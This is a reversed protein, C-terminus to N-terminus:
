ATILGVGLANSEFGWDSYYFYSNDTEKAAVTGWIVVGTGLGNSSEIPGGSDGEVALVHGNGNVMDLHCVYPGQSYQKCVDTVAVTGNCDEGTMSGNFCVHAGAFSARSGTVNVLGREGSTSPCGHKSTQPGYWMNPYTATSTATGDLFEADVLNNGYSRITVKGMNGTTILQLPCGTGTRYYGQKVVTNVAWCHGATLMGYHFVGPSIPKYVKFGATCEFGDSYAIRDSGSYAQGDSLRDYLPEAPQARVIAVRSGFRAHTADTLVPDLESFAIVVQGLKPDVYWSVLRDAVTSRWPETTPVARAVAKLTALAQGGVSFKLMWRKPNTLIDPDTGTGVTSMLGLAESQRATNAAAAIQVTLLGTQPDGWLGGFVDEYQNVIVQLESAQQDSLQQPSNDSALADINLLGAMAVTSVFVLWVKRPSANGTAM